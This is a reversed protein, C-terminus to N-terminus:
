RSGGPTIEPVPIRAEVLWGGLYPGARFVGQYVAVRERLGVLGNGGSPLASRGDGAAQPGPGHDLVRVDVATPAYGVLLELCAGAGAYKIANTIAEQVIRYVALEMGTPMRPPQGRFRAHVELGAGRAREVLTELQELAALPRDVAPEGGVERGDGLDGTGRLVAVLQRMEGLADRGTSSVTELAARASDLDRSLVYRAGDAQAIMVALSHAVIDHLERAINAREEAVALRALQDREREATVAREQLSEVFLRRNRTALGSFWVAVAVACTTVAMAVVEMADGDHAYASAFSTVVAGGLTATGALVGERLKPAYKVVSYMAVLVGFDYSMTPPMEWPLMGFALLVPIGTFVSVALFVAVPRRRRVLLALSTALGLPLALMHYNLGDSLAFLAVFGCLTVDYLVSRIPLGFWTRAVGM